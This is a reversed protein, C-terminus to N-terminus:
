ALVMSGPLALTAARREALRATIDRSLMASAPNRNRWYASWYCVGGPAAGAERRSYACSPFGLFRRGTLILDPM